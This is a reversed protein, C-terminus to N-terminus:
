QIVIGVIAVHVDAWQLFVSITMSLKIYTTKPNVSTVNLNNASTLHFVAVEAWFLVNDNFVFVFGAM